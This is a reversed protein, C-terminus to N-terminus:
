EKEFAAQHVEKSIWRAFSIIPWLVLPYMIPGMFAATGDYLLYALTILCGELFAWQFPREVRLLGLVFCAIPASVFVVNFVEGLQNNLALFAARRRAYEAQYAALRAAIEPDVGEGDSSSQSTSTGPVPVEFTEFPFLFFRGAGLIVPSLAILWVLRLRAASLRPPSPAQPDPSEPHTEGPEM